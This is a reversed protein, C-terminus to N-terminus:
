ETSSLTSEDDESDDVDAFRRMKKSRSSCQIPCIVNSLIISISLVLCVSMTVVEMLFLVLELSGKEGRGLITCVLSILSTIMITTAASSTYLERIYCQTM